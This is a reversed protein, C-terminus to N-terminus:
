NWCVAGGRTHIVANDEVFLAAHSLTPVPGAGGLCRLCRQQRITVIAHKSEAIVSFVTSM